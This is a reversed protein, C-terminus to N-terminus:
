SWTVSSMWDIRDVGQAGGLVRDDLVRDDCPFVSHVPRHVMQPFLGKMWLWIPLM